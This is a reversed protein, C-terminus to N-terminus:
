APDRPVFKRVKRYNTFYARDRTQGKIEMAMKEEDGSCEAVGDVQV